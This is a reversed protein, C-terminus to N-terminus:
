KLGGGFVAVAIVLGLTGLAGISRLGNDDDAVVM